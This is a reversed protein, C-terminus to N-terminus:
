KKSVFERLFTSYTELVDEVSPGSPIGASGKLDDPQIASYFAITLNSAVICKAEDTM